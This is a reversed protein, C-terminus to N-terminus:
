HNNAYVANRGDLLKKVIDKLAQGICATTLSRSFVTYGGLAVRERLEHDRYLALIKGTLEKPDNPKCLIINQGDSFLERIAESDRTIIAKKVSIAEYVKNPIVRNAKSTDAFIGLCIDARNMYVRLEEFPVKPIFEITDLTLDNVLKQITHYMQGRGVFQFRIPENRLLHAARVITEVGQMPNFGGHFHVLFQKHPPLEEPFLATEDSGILLRVFKERPIKFTDVFYRINADTDLLIKDAGKCALWDIFWYYYGSISRARVTMRDNVVSDYISFFADYVVPKRTLLRALWVLMYGPYAVFLVDYDNRMRWHTRILDLYKFIGTHTTHCEIVQVGQARLGALLVRNRSYNHRYFGFFCIRM